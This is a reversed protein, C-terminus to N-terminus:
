FFMLLKEVVVFGASYTKQNRSIYLVGRDLPSQLKVHDFEVGCIEGVFENPTVIGKSERKTQIIVNSLTSHVSKLGSFRLDM